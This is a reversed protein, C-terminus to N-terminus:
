KKLPGMYEYQHRSHNGNANWAHYPYGDCGSAYYRIYFTDGKKMPWMFDVHSDHWGTTHNWNYGYSRQVNNHFFQSHKTNCGHQITWATIRYWGGKQITVIGSAPNSITLYGQATNFETRDLCYNMWGPNTGKHTSCGGSWVAPAAKAAFWEWTKVGKNDLNVDCVQMGMSKDWRLSGEKAATCVTSTGVQVSGGATIDKTVDLSGSTEQNGNVAIKQNSVYQMKVSWDTIWGDKKTIVNCYAANGPAQFICFSSDNAKLTWLGQLNAGIFDQLAKGTGKQTQPLAKPTFTKDYKKEDKKGCPDCLVWGTKKDDPPLLTLSITSLDTNEVKVNIELTQATGINPFTINSVAETGLNDPILIKKIPAAETYVFQNTLMNNSIENLGDAPLASPDLAAICKLTGDANIGKVVEGNKTCEGSPTKIGTLKSGDGLYSSATVSAAAIGGSFTGNKAKLSNGGLDLDADFKMESVSVCGTCKLDSAPGGKTDSGAYNFGLKAASLSGDKVQSATLCGTCSLADASGAHLAFLTAHVRSRPLMPDAAIKVGLWQAKLAGLTKMDLPTTAGIVHSFQGGKVIVKVPGESWAATGGSESEWLSFTADYTGDAAAGGGSSTLMGEILSTAPAAAFVPGAVLASAVMAFAVWSSMAKQM